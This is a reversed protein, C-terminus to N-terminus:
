ENGANRASLVGGNPRHIVRIRCDTAALQNCMMPSNDTSGDDELIIEVNQYAQECISEICNNLCHEVNYVPVIVSILTTKM